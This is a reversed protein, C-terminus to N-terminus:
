LLSTSRFGISNAAASRSRGPCSALSSAVYETSNRAEASRRRTRPSGNVGSHNASCFSKRVVPFGMRRTSCAGLCRACGFVSFYSHTVCLGTVRIAGDPLTLVARTEDYAAALDTSKTLATWDAYMLDTLPEAGREGNIQQIYTLGEATRSRRQGLVMAIVAVYLLP